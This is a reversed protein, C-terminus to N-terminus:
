GARRRVHVRYLMRIFRVTDCLPSINSEEQRYVPSIRVFDLRLGKRGFRLLIESEAEYRRSVLDLHRLLDTEYLRFGNQSDPLSLGTLRSLLRSMARNTQRRLWPMAAPQWMRNGILIPIGTRRYTDLFKPIDGPDHQGDADMTIVLDMGLDLAHRFGRVLAAGKGENRDVRLVEAGAERAKDGTADNSGDDVVLVRPLHRRVGEVVGGVRAAENYAPLIALIRQPEPAPRAFDAGM